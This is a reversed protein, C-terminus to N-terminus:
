SVMSLRSSGSSESSESSASSGCDTGAEGSSEPMGVNGSWRSSSGGQKLSSGSGSGSGSSSRGGCKSSM